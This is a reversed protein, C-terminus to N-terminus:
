VKSNPQHSKKKIPLPIQVLIIAAFMVLCGLLERQSMREQLLLTGAIVAFVSEMSMLLSAPAPDTYKQAVLQFTYGLGGSMLGCYLIPIGASILKNWSPQETFFATPWSLLAVTAFQVAAVGVPDGKAAFHDCCLIHCSFTVASLCILLDGQALRFGESLCLLYMGVVGMLVAVWVIWQARKRFIVLNFVPVLLLYMATIFGAKGASTYVMGSQQLASALALFVGCCIGGIITNRIYSSKEEPSPLKERKIRWLAVPAVVIASLTTRAANFSIPEIEEMGTRQFVFAVGWIIAALLLLFNGFLKKGKM